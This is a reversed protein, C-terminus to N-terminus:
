FKKVHEKYNPNECPSDMSLVSFNDIAPEYIM